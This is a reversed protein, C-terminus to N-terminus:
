KQQKRKYPTYLDYWPDIRSKEWGNELLKNLNINTNYDYELSENIFNERWHGTATGLISTHYRLNLDRNISLIATIQKSCILKKLGGMNEIRQSITEAKKWGKRKGANKLGLFSSIYFQTTSDSLIISNFDLELEKKLIEATTQLESLNSQDFSSNMLHIIRGYFLPYPIISILIVLILILCAIARRTMFNQVYKLENLIKLLVVICFGPPIILLIRHYVIISNYKELIYALPISFPPYLLLLVPTISIWAIIENKRLLLIAFILNLVGLLGLIQLFRKPGTFDLNTSLIKFGGWSYLWNNTDTIREITQHFENNPITKYGLLTILFFLTGLKFIYYIGKLIGKKLCISHFYFSLFLPIILLISQPHNSVAIIFGLFMYIISKKRYEPGYSILANLLVLVGVLCLMTSSLAYYRFFSFSSNGYTIIIIFLSVKTWLDSKITLKGLKYFQFALILSIFAYYIDLIKKYNINETLNILSYTWFYSFKYHSVGNCIFEIHQWQFIRRVHELVDSPYELYVGPILFILTVTFWFLLDKYEKLSFAAFFLYCYGFFHFIHLIEYITLISDKPINFAWGLLYLFIYPLLFMWGSKFYEIVKFKILM